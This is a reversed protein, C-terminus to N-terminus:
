ATLTQRIAAFGTVGGAAASIGLGWLVAGIIDGTNGWTPNGPYLVLWGTLLSLGLAVAFLLWNNIKLERTLKPLSPRVHAEALSAPVSVPAAPTSGLASAGRPLEPAMLAIPEAVWAEPKQSIAQMRQRAQDYADHAAALDQKDLDTSVQDLSGLADKLIAAIKPAGPKQPDLGDQQQKLEQRFRAAVERLLDADVARLLELRDDGAQQAADLRRQMTTQLKPWWGAPAPFGLQSEDQMVFTRLRATLADAVQQEAANLDARAQASDAEELARQVRDRVRILTDSDLDLGDLARRLREARQATRERSDKALTDRFEKLKELLSEAKAADPEATIRKTLEQWDQQHASQIAPDAAVWVRYLDVWAPFATIQHRVATLRETADAENRGRAAKDAQDLVNQLGDAVAREEADLGHPVNKIATNLDERARAVEIRRSVIGARPGWFQRIGAALLVGLTVAVLAWWWPRRLQITAAQDVPAYGLATFRITAAYSGAAAPVELALAVQCTRGAALTLRQGSLRCGTTNGVFHVATLRVETEVTQGAISASPAVVAPPELVLRRGTTETVAVTRTIAQWHPGDSVGATTAVSDVTFPAAGRTRTVSVTVRATAAGKGISLQATYPGGFPLDAALRVTALGGSFRVTRPQAKTPYTDGGPSRFPTVSIPVPRAPGQQRLTLVAVPSPGTLTLAITGDTAGVVTVKSGSPSSPAPALDAFAAGGVFVVVTAVSLALLHRSPHM